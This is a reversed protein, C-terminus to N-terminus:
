WMCPAIRTHIAMRKANVPLWPSTLAQRWVYVARRGKDAAERTQRRWSCDEELYVGLYRECAVRALREGGWRFDATCARAARGGFVVVHTKPVNLTWGWLLSHQHVAAILQRLGAATAAGAALDDAYLQGRWQRSAAPSGVTIADAEPLSVADLHELVSDIFVAYLLPSLPCGQAVGRRVPFADSLAGGVRVRSSAAAYMRDIVAFAKGRVGKQLLRHLLLDHPVSDYAQKADFFCMYTSQKRAHRQRTIEVVNHLANLVGRGPRFAYQQDHLEVEQLLRRTLLVAFLKDICSMITLPRYNGCDSADGRKYAHSIVGQRWAAPICGSDYVANFLHTLMRKGAPGSCKLLEVPLGDLGAAKRRKLSRVCADVEEVTFPADLAECKGPDRREDDIAQRAVVRLDREADDCPPTDRAVTAAFAAFAGAQEPPSTCLAATDPHVVTPIGPPAGGVALSELAQHMAYSGHENHYLDACKRHVSTALDRRAASIAKRLAKNAAALRAELVALPVTSTRLAVTAKRRRNYARRVAPTFWRKTIGSVVERTGISARAAGLLTHAM